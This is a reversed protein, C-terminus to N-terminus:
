SYSCHLYTVQKAERRHLIEVDSFKNVVINIGKATHKNDSCFKVHLGDFSVLYSMSPKNSGCLKIETNGMMMKVSDPCDCGPGDCGKTVPEQLQQDMIHYTVFGTDAVNWVCYTNNPYNDHIFYHPSHIQYIDMENTRALREIPKYRGKRELKCQSM